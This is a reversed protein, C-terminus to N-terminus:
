NLIIENSPFILESKWIFLKKVKTPFSLESLLATYKSFQWYKPLIYFFKAQLFTSNCEASKKYNSNLLYAIFPFDSLFEWSKKKKKNYVPTDRGM